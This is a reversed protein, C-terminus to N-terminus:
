SERAAEEIENRRLMAGTMWSNLAFQIAWRILTLTLTLSLTLALTLTLTLTLALALALALALGLTLIRVPNGVPAGHLALAPRHGRLLCGGTLTLTLTLTLPYLLPHLLPPIAAKSTDSGLVRLPPRAGPLASEEGPLALGGLAAPRARLLCLLRAPASGLPM